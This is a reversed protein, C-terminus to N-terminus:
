FDTSAVTDNHELVQAARKLGLSMIEESEYAGLMQYRHQSFALCEKIQFKDLREMSSGVIPPNIRIVTENGKVEYYALRQTTHPAHGIPVFITETVCNRIQVAAGSETWYHTYPSEVDGYLLKFSGNAANIHVSAAFSIIRYVNHACKALSSFMVNEVDKVKGLNIYDNGNTPNCIWILSSKRARVLNEQEYDGSLFRGPYSSVVIPDSGQHFGDANEPSGNPFYVKVDLGSELRISNLLSLITLSNASKDLCVLAREVEERAVQKAFKAVAHLVACLTGDYKVFYNAGLKLFAYSNKYEADMMTNKRLNRARQLALGFGHFGMNNGIKINDDANYGVMQMFWDIVDFSTGGYTITCNPKYDPGYKGALYAVAASAKHQQFNHTLEVVPLSIIVVNNQLSMTGKGDNVLQPNLYYFSGSPLAELGTQAKEGGYARHFFMAYIGFIEEKSFSVDGIIQPIHARVMKARLVALTSANADILDGDKFQLREVVPTRFDYRSVLTTVRFGDCEVVRTRENNLAGFVDELLIQLAGKVHETFFINCAAASITNLRALPGAFKVLQEDSIRRGQRAIAPLEKKRGVWACWVAPGVEDLVEKLTNDSRAHVQGIKARRQVVLPPADHEPEEAKDDVSDADYNPPPVQFAPTRNSTPAATGSLSELAVAIRQKHDQVYNWLMNIVVDHTWEGEVFTPFFLLEALAATPIALLEAPLLLPPLFDRRERDAEDEGPYISRLEDAEDDSRGSYLEENQLYIWEPCHSFLRDFQDRSLKILAEISFISSQIKNSM